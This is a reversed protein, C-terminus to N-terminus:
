EPEEALLHTRLSARARHLRSKVTSVSTGSLRALDEYSRKEDLSLQLLARQAESLRAIGDGLAGAADALPQPAPITDHAPTYSVFLRRWGLRARLHDRCVNRAIQFLWPEFRDHARLRPLGLVMKVFVTQCLDEYSAADGTQAIAFSAVRQRYRAILAEAARRDGGAARAVLDDTEAPPPLAASL